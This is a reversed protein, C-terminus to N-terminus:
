ALILFTFHTKPAHVNNLLYIQIVVTSLVINEGNIIEKKNLGEILKVL